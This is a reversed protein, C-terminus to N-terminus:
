QLIELILCVLGGLNFSERRTKCNLKGLGNFDPTLNVIFIYNSCRQSAM